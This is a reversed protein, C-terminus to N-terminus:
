ASVAESPEALVARRLGRCVLSICTKSVSYRHALPVLMWGLSRLQRCERVDEATMKQHKHVKPFRLRRAADRMNDLQTGLYLHDPNVCAPVDCHHNVQVGAPINGRLLLWAIRNTRCEGDAKFQGHGFRFKAGSWLWCGRRRDFSVRRWFRVRAERDMGFAACAPAMETM